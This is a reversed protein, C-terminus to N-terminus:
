TLPRSVSSKKLFLYMQLTIFNNNKRERKTGITNTKNLNSVFLLMTTESLLNQM